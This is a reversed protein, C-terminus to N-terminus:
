VYRRDRSSTDKYGLSEQSQEGEKQVNKKKLTRQNTITDVDGDREHGEDDIDIIPSILSKDLIDSWEEIRQNPGDELHGEVMSDKCFTMDYPWIIKKTEMSM